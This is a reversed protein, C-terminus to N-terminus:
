VRGFLDESPNEFFFCLACISPEDDMKGLSLTMKLYGGNEALGM